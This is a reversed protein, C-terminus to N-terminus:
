SNNDSDNGSSQFIALPGIILNKLESDDLLKDIIMNHEDDSMGSHSKIADIMRLESSHSFATAIKLQAKYIVRGFSSLVIEGNKRSILGIKLLTSMRSYYEKPSLDLLQMLNSPNTVDNSISTIIDMSLRDSIAELVDLNSAPIRRNMNIM